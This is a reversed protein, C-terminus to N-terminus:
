HFPTTFGIIRMPFAIVTSWHRLLKKIEVPDMEFEQAMDDLYPKLATELEAQPIGLLTAYDTNSTIDNLNNLGSFLSVKSFKSVGTVLVFRLDADREKVVSYFEQLVNRIMKTAKLDDANESELSDLIPKDFEDILIVVPGQTSLKDILENFCRRPSTAELEFDWGNNRVLRKLEHVLHDEFDKRKQFREAYVNLQIVPHVPFDYDTSAIALGEFLAKNGQFLEKLTSVLLSKGFRRPRSLFYYRDTTVMQHILATKDIYILNESPDRLTAFHYTDTALHERSKFMAGDSATATQQEVSKKHDIVDSLMRDRGSKFEQSQLNFLSLQEVLHQPVHLLAAIEVLEFSRSCPVQSIGNVFLRYLMELKYFQPNPDSKCVPCKCGIFEHSELWQYGQNITEFTRRISDLCATKDGGFFAISVTHDLDDAVM